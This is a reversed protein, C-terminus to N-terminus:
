DQRNIEAGPARKKAPPEPAEEHKKAQSDGKVRKESCSDRTDAGTVMPDFDVNLKLLALIKIGGKLKNGKAL